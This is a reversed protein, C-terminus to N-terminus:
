AAAPGGDEPSDPVGRSRRYAAERARTAARDGEGWLPDMTTAFNREILRSRLRKMQEHSGDRAAALYWARLRQEDRTENVIRTWVQELYTTKNRHKEHVLRKVLAFLNGELESPEFPALVEGGYGDRALADRIWRIGYEAHQKRLWDLFDAPAFCVTDGWVFQERYGDPIRHNSLNLCLLGVCEGRIEGPSSPLPRAQPKDALSAKAEAASRAAAYEREVEAEKRLEALRKRLVPSALNGTRELAELEQLTPSSM